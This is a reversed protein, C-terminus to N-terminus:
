FNLLMVIGAPLLAVRREDVGEVIIAEKAKETIALFGAANERVYKRIM